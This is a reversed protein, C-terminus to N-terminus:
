GRGLFLTEVERVHDLKVNLYEALRQASFGKQYYKNFVLGLYTDGLYAIQNRYYNGGTASARRERARRIGETRKSEYYRQDILGRDLCKRLIVEQSVKFRDALAKVMGDDVRKGSSARTFDGAPVLLEGVFRNCLVEIRRNDGRLGRLFADNNKDIGGTRFLLHALEHFLTFIQRTLPMSNNVYILPFEEDYVAFGSLDECRFAEKFVYIGNAEITRRWEKLATEVNAWGIQTDLSVGLYARVQAVIVSLESHPEFRLDRFIKRAAPNMGDNLEDLNAQMAQAQRFLQLFRPPFQRLETEPLTRFSNRPSIEEPPQPFFFVAIPRKYLKYALTELQVYTPSSTGSEWDQITEADKKMRIAVDELPMNISERAWRLTEPNVPIAPRM